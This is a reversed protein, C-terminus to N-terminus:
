NRKNRKAPKLIKPNPSCNTDTKEKKRRCKNRMDHTAAVRKVYGLERNINLHCHTGKPQCSSLVRARAQKEAKKGRNKKGKARLVMLLEWQQQKQNAQFGRSLPVEALEYKTRSHTGSNGKAYTIL